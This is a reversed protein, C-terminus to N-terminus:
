PVALFAEKLYSPFSAHYNDEIELYSSWVVMNREVHLAEADAFFSSALDDDHM